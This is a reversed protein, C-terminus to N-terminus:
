SGILDLEPLEGPQFNFDEEVLELLVKKLAERDQGAIMIAAVIQGIVQMRDESIFEYNGGVGNSACRFDARCDKGVNTMKIIITNNKFSYNKAGVNAVDNKKFERYVEEMTVKRGAQQQITKLLDMHGFFALRGVKKETYDFTMTVKKINNERFEVAQPHKSKPTFALSLDFRASQINDMNEENLPLKPNKEKYNSIKASMIIGKPALVKKSVAAFNKDFLAVDPDVKVAAKKASPKKPAAKKSAPKKSQASATDTGFAATVGLSLVAIKLGFSKLFNM